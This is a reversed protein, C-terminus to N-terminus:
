TFDGAALERNSSTSVGLFEEHKMNYTTSSSGVTGAVRPCLSCVALIQHLRTVRAQGMIVLLYIHFEFVIDKFCILQLTKMPSM